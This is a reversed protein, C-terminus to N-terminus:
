KGDVSSAVLVNGPAGGIFGYGSNVYLIGGGV